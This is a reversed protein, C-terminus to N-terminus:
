YSSIEEFILDIKCPKSNLTESEDMKFITNKLQKYYDQAMDYIDKNTCAEYLNKYSFYFPIQDSTICNREGAYEGKNNVKIKLFAVPLFPNKDHYISYYFGNYMFALVFNGFDSYFGRTNKLAQIKENDDTCFNQPTAQVEVLEGRKLVRGGNKIIIKKVENLVRIRNFNNLSLYIKKM